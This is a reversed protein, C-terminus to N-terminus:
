GQRRAYKLIMAVLADPDLPKAIHDAMGAALCKEREEGFAHATQGIVPLDPALARIRRTAEYGDMEPMQIDMLVIDFGGGGHAAVQEVAQQGNATMTLRAGFELLNDELVMQNVADDEAALISLGALPKAEPHRTTKEVPPSSSIARPPVFPLRFEFDSGAGPTSRVTIDGGMMELLQKCIALGLGTGGFKRTTSNDAQHFPNFLGAVQDPTMGIGTDTLRFILWADQHEANLTISGAETFKVANSLLNLLIQGLRLADGNCASPFDQALQIRIALQKAAARDRIMDVTHDIVERLDMDEHEIRLKGADIKSFDLVDNVVALLRNGSSIIKDFAERAKAPDHVNRSGIHAYGMVGNLPTRIEHSMNALFQSRARALNEAALLATERAQAAARLHTIDVFSTVSASVGGSQRIPHVSYMVPIPHGDAHWYVENDVRISEGSRRALFSPCETAPYPSGDSRSHHFLSHAHRGIMEDPTYGLIDCGARNIFIIIGKADVGFLGDASSQLIHSAKAETEMLEATRQEVLEELHNRHQELELMVQKHATVDRSVIVLARRQGSESFLPVKFVDFHTDHGSEAPIIEETRFIRGHGWAEEDSAKCAAMGDALRPHRRGIELDTLGQWAEGELGFLRLCVSNAILWRGEGDKFQISDPIAEILTRLQDEQEALAAEAAKRSTIDTSIGCLAYISGDDRRLPLKTSQYVSTKSKDPLTNVEDTRITEGHRLVREDNSRINAATGADFFKEDGQGVIDVMRAQWLERVARNAFLYRGETDKLYIYADVNDLITLLRQGSAELAAESSKLRAYARAGQIAVSLKESIPRLQSLRRPAFADASEMKLVGFPGLPLLAVNVAQRTEANVLRSFEPHSADMVEPRGSRTRQWLPHDLPVRTDAQDCRPIADLVVLMNGAAAPDDRELWWISAGILNRQAVLAKLFARCTAPVELTQGLSLSLEYLQLMEEAIDSHPATM